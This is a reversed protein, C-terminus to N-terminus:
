PGEDVELLFVTANTGGGAKRELIRIPTDGEAVLVEIEDGEFVEATYTTHMSRIVPSRGLRRQLGDM